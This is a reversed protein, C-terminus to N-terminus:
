SWAFTLLAVRALGDITYLWCDICPEFLLWFLL